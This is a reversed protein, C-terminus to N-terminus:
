SVDCWMDSYWRTGYISFPHVRYRTCVRDAEFITLGNKQWKDMSRRNEKLFESPLLDILPQVPLRSTKRSRRDNRVKTRAQM